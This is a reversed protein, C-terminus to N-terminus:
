AAGVSLGLHDWTESDTISWEEDVYICDVPCVMVCVPCGSCLEPVIVVDLRRDIIAGFETPCARLCMDCAICESSEIRRPPKKWAEDRSRTAIRQSRATGANASPKGEVM